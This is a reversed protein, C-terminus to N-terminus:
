VDASSSRQFSDFDLVRVTDEYDEQRRIKGWRTDVVLMARNAYLDSGDAGPVWHHVRAAARMRWPPGNVFIDEVVMQIGTHVYRQLFAEIDARGRHTVCAQRGLEVPRLQGSWSNDGPFCLEGDDAFMALAAGHDGSNLRRISRRIMWRVAAKYM